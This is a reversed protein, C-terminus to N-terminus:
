DPIEGDSMIPGALLVMAFKRARSSDPDTLGPLSCYGLVDPRDCVRSVFSVALGLHVAMCCHGCEHLATRLEESTM